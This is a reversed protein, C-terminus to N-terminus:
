QIWLSGSTNPLLPCTLTLVPDVSYHTDQSSQVLTEEDSLCLNCCWIWLHPHHSCIPPLAQNPSLFCAILINTKLVPSNPFFYHSDQFISNHLMCRHSLHLYFHPVFSLSLSSTAFKFPFTLTCFFQLCSPQPFSLPFLSLCISLSLPSLSPFVSLSSIINWLSTKAHHDRFSVCLQLDCMYYVLTGQKCVDYSPSSNLKGGLSSSCYLQM